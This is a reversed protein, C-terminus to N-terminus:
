QKPLPMFTGANPTGWIVHSGKKALELQVERAAEIERLRILQPTLSSNLIRNAEAEGEAEAKRRAAQAEALEKEKQVRLVHQDMQVKAIIAEEVRQDPLLSRVNVGTVTFAGLDTKDLEAQLMKILDAALEDRKTHIVDGGFKAIAKYAQERAERSVRAYGVFRDNSNSLKKALPDKEDRPLDKVALTDGQYKVALKAVHGPNSKVYVDLDVDRMTMNDATKARLDNLAFSIEKTTFEDVTKTISQYVGPPLEKDSYQGLTSQVGVNGTDIQSCAALVSIITAMGLLRMLKSLISQM